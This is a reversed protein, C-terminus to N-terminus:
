TKSKQTPYSIHINGWSLGLNELVRTEMQQQLLPEILADLADNDQRYFAIIDLRIQASSHNELTHEIYERLIKKPPLNAYHRYIQAILAQKSENEKQYWSEHEHYILHLCTISALLGMATAGIEMALTLSILKLIICSFTIVSIIIAGYCATKATANQSQNFLKSIMAM